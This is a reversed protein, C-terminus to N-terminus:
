RESQFRIITEGPAQRDLKDRAQIELYGDDHRLWRLKAEESAQLRRMEELRAAVKAEEALMAKHEKFVPAVYTGAIGLGTLGLGAFLVARIRRQWVPPELRRGAVPQWPERFDPPM